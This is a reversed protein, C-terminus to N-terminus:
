KTKLLQREILEELQKFEKPGYGISQYIIKGNEDILINRPISQTAFKGFVGRDVDPLIPFTFGKNAKFTNLKDWNEERGFVLLAFKPNDKHKDWIEKQMLPLETNCPPCWTAFLNILTLKGKYNEIRAQKGPELEFSFSPVAQGIKTLTSNDEKQAFVNVTCLIFLTTLIQKM